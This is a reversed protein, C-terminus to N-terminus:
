KSEKQKKRFKLIKCNSDDKVQEEKTEQVQEGMQNLEEPINKVADFKLMKFNESRDASDWKGKVVHPSQLHFIGKRPPATSLSYFDMILWSGECKSEHNLRYGECVFYGSFSYQQDASKKIFLVFVDGEMPFDIEEGPNVYRSAYNIIEDKSLYEDDM